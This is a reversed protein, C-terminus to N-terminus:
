RDAARPRAPPRRLIRNIGLLTSLCHRRADDQAQDQTKGGTEKHSVRDPAHHGSTTSLSIPLSPVRRRRGILHVIPSKSLQLKRKARAASKRPLEHSPASGLKSSHRISRDLFHNQVSASSAVQGEARFQEIPFSLKFFASAVNPRTNPRTAVGTAWASVM